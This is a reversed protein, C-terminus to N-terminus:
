QEQLYKLALEAVPAQDRDAYYKRWANMDQMFFEAHLKNVVVVLETLIDAIDLDPTINKAKELLQNVEPHHRDIFDNGVYGYIWESLVLPEICYGNEKIRRTFFDKLTDVDNVYVPM